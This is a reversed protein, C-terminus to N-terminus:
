IAFKLFLQMIKFFLIALVAAAPVTIIWSFFINRIIRLNLAGIGRALGVGFVGGVLTQTASVPIGANTSIIVTTAAALTAAFARSPTLTTIGKGVTAIVKEGYMFLGLIVGVCGMVMLWLPVPNNMAVAGSNKFISFIAALPGIAIGVDNSGHAFVMACATFAMLISFLKEAYEFRQYRKPHKQITVQNCLLQGLFAIFFAVCVLILGRQYISAKYGYKDLDHFVIMFSFVIGVMFFFLPLYRRASAAPDPSALILRRLSVFIMYALFGAIAPSCLWSIAIWRVTNWHIAHLGLVISGFGVLAGVISHTISVPMGLYSALLIWTMAALLVALMGCILIEPNNIFLSTDIIGSRITKSVDVGGLLAGAFEFIVAIILAQRLTIAKSAMSTSMVNALDNAGVGWTMVLCVVGAIILFVLSYEM